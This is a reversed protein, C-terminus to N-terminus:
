RQRSRTGNDGSSRNVPLPRSELQRKLRLLSRRFLFELGVATLRGTLPLWPEFRIAWRVHTVGNDEALFIDGQHWRFPAGTRLRYTYRQGEDWDVVEETLRLGFARLERLCGPGDPSERGPRLVQGRFPTWDGLNAHDILREWVAERPANISVENDVYPEGASFGSLWWLSRRAYLMEISFGDLDNVYMVRFMGIDVPEGNPRMGSKTAHIFFRDFEQASRYGLAINMFGQDCIQYGAPRPRPAPDRYQVLEVLFNRGHLVASEARAGALGWLVEDAATHLTCDPLETLGMAGTFTARARELDPVSVRM